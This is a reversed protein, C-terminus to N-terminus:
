RDLRKYWHALLALVYRFLHDAATGVLVPRVVAFVHARAAVHGLATGLQGGM